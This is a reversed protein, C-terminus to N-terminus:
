AMSPAKIRYTKVPKYLSLQPSVAVGRAGPFSKMGHLVVFDDSPLFYLGCLGQFRWKQWVFELMSWVLLMLQSVRSLDNTEKKYSIESLDRKLERTPFASTTLASIIDGNANAM